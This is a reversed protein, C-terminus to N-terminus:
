TTAFPMDASILKAYTLRKGAIDRAVATFRNLDSEERVNYRFVQEDVYRFLHFPDM